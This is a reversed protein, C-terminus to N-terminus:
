YSPLCTSSTSFVQRRGDLKTCDGCYWVEQGKEDTISNWCDVPDGQSNSDVGSSLAEVNQILLNNNECANSKLAKTGVFTAIAVAAICPLIFLSKKKM